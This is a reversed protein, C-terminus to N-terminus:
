CLRLQSRHVLLGAVWIFRARVRSQTLAVTTVRKRVHLPKGAVKCDHTPRASPTQRFFLIERHLSQSERHRQPPITRPLLEGCLCPSRVSSWLSSNESLNRALLFKIVIIFLIGPKASENKRIAAASGITKRAVASATTGRRSRM